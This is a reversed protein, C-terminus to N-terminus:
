SLCSHCNVKNIKLPKKRSETKHKSYTMEDIKKAYFIAGEKSYHAHDFTLKYGKDDLIPCRKSDLNCQYDRKNLFTVGMHKAFGALNRNVLHLQNNKLDRYALKELNILESPTPYRKNDKAFVEIDIDGTLTQQFEITSSVIIPVKGDTRVKNVIEELKTYDNVDEPLWNSALIIYHAWEYQNNLNETFNDNDRPSGECFTSGTKLFDNFCSIQYNYDDNRKIPSTLTLTFNDSVSKSYSLLM